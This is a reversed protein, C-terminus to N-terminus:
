QESKVSVIQSRRKSKINERERSFSFYRVINRDFKKKLKKSHMQKTLDDSGPPVPKWFLSRVFTTVSPSFPAFCFYVRIM